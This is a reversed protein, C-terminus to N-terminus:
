PKASRREVRQLSAKAEQTLRANAAGDALGDLLRRTKRTGISELVQLARIARLGDPSFPQEDIADLLATIRKRVELTPKTKLTKRLAPVAPEGIKELERSAKGRRVFQEHDLDAILAAIHAMKAPPVPPLSKELFPLAADPAQIMEAVAQQARVADKSALDSWLEALKASNLEKDDPRRHTVAAVDWSLVTNDEHSCSVLSAGDPSFALMHVDGQHGRLLHIQKGTPVDWLRIASQPNGFSLPVAAGGPDYRSQGGGSALTRNDSAFALARVLAPHGHLERIEQGSAVEYLHINRAEVSSVALLRSDSSFALMQPYPFALMKTVNNPLRHNALRHRLRNKEVDWLTVTDDWYLIGLTRGDPSWALAGVSSEKSDPLRRLEEGKAAGLLHITNYACLALMSGDPSFAACYIRGSFGSLAPLRRGTALDWGIPTEDDRFSGLARRGDPTVLLLSVPSKSSHDLTRLRHGDRGDWLALEGDRAGTLLTRGDGTMAVVTLQHGVGTLPRPAKRADVERITVVGDTGASALFSSDPSFTLNTVEPEHEFRRLEKGTAPDWLLITGLMGGAALLRGDRSFTLTPLEYDKADLRRLEKDAPWSRLTVASRIGDGIVAALTKGDPSFTLSYVVPLEENDGLIKSQAGTAVTWRVVGKDTVGILTRGDPAFELSHGSPVVKGELCRLEKGTDAAYLRVRGNEWDVAALLKGDASFAEPYLDNKKPVRFRRLEKGTALDCLRIGDIPGGYALTRGDASFVASQMKEWKALQKGGPVQWLRVTHDAGASALTRGDPLWALDTVAADHRLRVTGLRFRVGDPLPDGYHDTRAPHKTPPEGSHAQGILLPFFVALPPLVNWRAM